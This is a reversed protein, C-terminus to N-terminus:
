LVRGKSDIAVVVPFDEVWLEYIAEAGLDKYAVVKARKIKSSLYAGAGGIAALYVSKHRKIARAVEKSRRGKGISAGLGKEMLLPTFKDMRASTTPGCSGLAMGPKAPAPGCYYLINDSLSIPLPKGAKIADYLRKHAADRATYIRGCLLLEEGASFKVRIDKTLPLYVRKMNFQGQLAARQM